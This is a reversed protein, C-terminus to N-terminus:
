ESAIATIESATINRQGLIVFFIGPERITIRSALMTLIIKSLVKPHCVSVIPLLYPEIGAENGSGDIGSILGDTIVLSNGVATEIAISAAMSDSKLALTASPIVPVFCSEFVSSIACPMAFINLGIKPPIGAVPATARVAVFILFPPFVGTAPM